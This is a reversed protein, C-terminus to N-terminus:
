WRAKKGTRLDTHVWSKYKGVGKFRKDAEAYLVKLRQHFGTGWKPRFDTAFILHQSGESGGVQENYLECRHGSTVIVPFGVLVRIEELLEM